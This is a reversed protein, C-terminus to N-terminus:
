VAFQRLEQIGNRQIDRRIIAATEPIRSRRILERVNATKNQRYITAVYCLVRGSPDRVEFEEIVIDFAPGRFTVTNM